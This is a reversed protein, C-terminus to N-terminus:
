RDAPRTAALLPFANVRQAAREWAFRTERTASGLAQGAGVAVGDAIAPAYAALGSYGIRDGDPTVLFNLEDPGFSIPEIVCTNVARIRAGREVM